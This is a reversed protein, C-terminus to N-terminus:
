IKDFENTRSEQSDYVMRKPHMLKSIASWRSQKPQGKPDCIFLLLSELSRLTVEEAETLISLMSFNHFESKMAKLNRLAKRIKKKLKNRSALYKGGEITFITKDGKRKRIVSHLEHM